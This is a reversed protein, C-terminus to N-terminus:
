GSLFQAVVRCHEEVSDFLTTHGAGKIVHKVAGPIGAAIKNMGVGSPGCDWPTMKDFEGGIVLTPARIKALENRLDVDVMAQCAARYVRPEVTETLATQMRSIAGDGEGSDLFNRDLAQLAVFSAYTRSTAGIRDILDIAIRYHLRGAFDFKAVACNVVLRSVRDPYRAAFNMAVMGGMSTGHVHACPINLADLLAAIDDAWGSMGYDQHPRSSRGYGRQDFDIVRFSASLRPTALAFNAHGLGGGHIQIVPFGSGTEQYWLEAGNLAAMAM